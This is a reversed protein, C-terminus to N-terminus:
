RIYKRRSNEELKGWPISLVPNKKEQQATVLLCSPVKHQQLTKTRSRELEPKWFPHLERTRCAMENHNHIESSRHYPRQRSVRRLPSRGWQWDSIGSCLSFTLALPFQCLPLWLHLIFYVSPASFCFAHSRLSFRLWFQPWKSSFTGQPNLELTWWNKFKYPLIEKDRPHM